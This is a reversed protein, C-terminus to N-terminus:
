QSQVVFCKQTQGTVVSSVIIESVHLITAFFWSFANSFICGFFFVEKSTASTFYAWTDVDIGM